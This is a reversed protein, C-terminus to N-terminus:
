SHSAVNVYGGGGCSIYLSDGSPITDNALIDVTKLIGPILDITDNVLTIGQAHLTNGSILQVLMCVLLAITYIHKKM